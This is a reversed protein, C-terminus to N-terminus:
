IFNNIKEKNKIILYDENITLKSLIEEAIKCYNEDQEIGIFNRKELM